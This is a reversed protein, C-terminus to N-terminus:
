RTRLTWATTTFEVGHARIRYRWLHPRSTVPDPGEDAVITAEILLVYAPDGARFGYPTYHVEQGVIFSPAASLQDTM